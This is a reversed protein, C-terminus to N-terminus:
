FEVCVPSIIKIFKSTQTLRGNEQNIRFLAINDSNQNAAFLWQGSPDIEFNRPTKGGSPVRDLMKLLGTEPDIGFLVISDDGRNSIYLFKGKQDIKIEATTNVGKFNEPLTSITQRSILSSSDHTFNFVTVTSSLENLVYMFKGSPSFALHRPGAGPASQIFAPTDPSVLGSAAYLKYILVKDTGLDAVLVYKNDDTVQIYHAHPGTQRDPNAGAGTSQIFATQKGLLGDKGVPFVAFNGGNYNAVLLYKGTKDLSLHAPAAGLSSVQQLFDLKGSKRHVKFVSIAGVRSSQFSDTENVAYLYKGQPDIAIFSPDVTVAALQPTSVVGSVPNFECSYIGESGRDTYTGIYLRQQDRSVNCSVIIQMCLALVIIRGSAYRNCFTNLSKMKM